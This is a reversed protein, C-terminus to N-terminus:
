KKLYTATPLYLREGSMKNVVALSRVFGKVKQEVSVFIQALLWQAAAFLAELV